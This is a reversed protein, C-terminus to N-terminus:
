NAVVLKNRGVIDNGLQLSVIYIGSPLGGTQLDILQRSNKSLVGEFLNKVLKGSLDFENLLPSEVPSIIRKEEQCFIFSPYLAGIIVSIIFVLTGTRNIM